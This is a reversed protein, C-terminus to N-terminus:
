LDLQWTIIPQVQGGSGNTISMNRAGGPLPIFGESDHLGILDTGIFQDQFGSTFIDYRVTAQFPSNAGSNVGGLRWGTAGAPILINDGSSAGITAVTTYHASPTSTNGIAIFASASYDVDPAVYPSDIDLKEAMLSITVKSSPLSVQQTGLADIILRSNAGGVGVDIVWRLINNAQAPTDSPNVSLIATRVHPIGKSGDNQLIVQPQKEQLEAARVIRRQGWQEPHYQIGGDYDENDYLTMNKEEATPLTCGTELAGLLVLLLIYLKSMSYRVFLRLM